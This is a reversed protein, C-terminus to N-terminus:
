VSTIDLDPTEELPNIFMETLFNQITSISVSSIHPIFNLSQSMQQYLILYFKLSIKGPLFIYCESSFELGM